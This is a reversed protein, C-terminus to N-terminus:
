CHLYRRKREVAESGQQAALGALRSVQHFDREAIADKSFIADSLVVASAGKLIYETMADESSQCGYQSGVTSRNPDNGRSHVSYQQRTNRDFRGRYILPEDSVQGWCSNSEPCRYLELCYWSRADSCPPRSGVSAFDGFCGSHVDRNGAVVSIGGILAACAAEMAVEASDSRLCAIVGSMEIRGVTHDVSSVTSLCAFSSARAPLRISSNVGSVSCPMPLPVVGSASSAM